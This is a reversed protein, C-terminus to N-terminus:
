PQTFIWEYVKLKLTNDQNKLALNQPLSLGQVQMHSAVSLHWAQQNVLADLTLTNGQEDYTAQAGQPVGKIWQQMQKLPLDWGALQKILQEATAANHENGDSDRLWAGYPDQKVELVTKFLKTFTIHFEDGQQRWNIDVANAKQGSTRIALKGTLQWHNLKALEAQQSFEPLPKDADPSVLSCGSLGIIIFLLCFRLHNM